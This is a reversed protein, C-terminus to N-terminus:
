GHIMVVLPGDGATVYHLKVGGSDVFGHASFDEAQLGDPVLCLTMFILLTVIAVRHPM